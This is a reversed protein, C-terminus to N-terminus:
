IQIICRWLCSNRMGMKAASIKYLAGPTKHNFMQLYYINTLGINFTARNIEITRVSIGHMSGTYRALSM